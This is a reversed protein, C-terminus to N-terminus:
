GFTLLTELYENHVWSEWQSFGDDGIEFQSIAEFTGPGTGFSSLPNDSLTYTNILNNTVKSLELRKNLKDTFFTSCDRQCTVRDM